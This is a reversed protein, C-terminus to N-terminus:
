RDRPSPVRCASKGSAYFAPRIPHWQPRPSTVPWCWRNSITFGLFSSRFRELGWVLPFFEDHFVGEAGKSGVGGCDGGELDTHGIKLGFNRGKDPIVLLNCGKAPDLGGDFVLGRGFLVIPLAAVLPM